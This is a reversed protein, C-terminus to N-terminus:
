VCQWFYFVLWLATMGILFASLRRRWSNRRDDAAPRVWDTGGAALYHMMKRRRYGLKPLTRKLFFGDDNGDNVALHFNARQSPSSMQRLMTTSVENKTLRRGNVALSM